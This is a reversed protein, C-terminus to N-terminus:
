RESGRLMMMVAEEVSSASSRIGSHRHSYLRGQIWVASTRSSGRPATLRVSPLVSSGMPM